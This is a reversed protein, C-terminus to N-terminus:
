RHVKCWSVMANCVTPAYAEGYLVVNLTHLERIAQLLHASLRVVHEHSYWVNRWDILPVSSLPGAWTNWWSDSPQLAPLVLTVFHLLSVLNLQVVYEDSSILLEPTSLRTPLSSGQFTARIKFVFVADGISRM